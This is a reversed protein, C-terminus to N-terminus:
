FPNSPQNSVEGETVALTVDQLVPEGHQHGHRLDLSLIANPM